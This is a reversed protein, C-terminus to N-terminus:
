RTIARAADPLTPPPGHPDIPSLPTVKPGPYLVPPNHPKIPSMQKVYIPSEIVPPDHPKIPSIHVMRTPGALLPNASLALIGLTLRLSFYPHKM